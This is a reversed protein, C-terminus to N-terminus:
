AVLPADSLEPDVLLSSRRRNVDRYLDFSGAWVHWVGPAAERWELRPAKPHRGPPTTTRFHDGAHTAFYVLPDPTTSARQALRVAFGPGQQVSTDFALAYVRETPLIGMAAVAREAGQWHEGTTAVETQVDQWVPDQAAANFRSVWPEEWLVAGAVPELSGAETVALLERWAPGFTAQFRQPDRDFMAGLLVGLNGTVQAWQIIGWSLGARDRNRNMAHFGGGEHAKVRALVRARWGGGPSSPVGPAPPGSPPATVPRRAQQSTNGADLFWLVAATAPPMLLWWM